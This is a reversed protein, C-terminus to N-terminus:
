AELYDQFSLYRFAIEKGRLAVIGNDNKAGTAGASPSLLQGPTLLGTERAIQPAERLRPDRHSLGAFKSDRV